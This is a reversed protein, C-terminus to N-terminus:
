RRATPMSFASRTPSATAQRDPWVLRVHAAIQRNNNFAPSFLFSYPSAASSAPKWRMSHSRRRATMRISRRAAPFRRASDSKVSTTSPRHAGATAASPQSTLLGSSDDPATFFYVGNAASFTQPFVVLGAANITADSLSADVPSTYATDGKAKTGLLNQTGTNNIVDLKIAVQGADNLDPTGNTFSM